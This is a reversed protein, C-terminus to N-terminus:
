QEKNKPLHEPFEEYFVEAPSCGSYFPSCWDEKEADSIYENHATALRKLEHWYVDLDLDDNEM